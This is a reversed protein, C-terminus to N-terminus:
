RVIVLRQDRFERGSALRVHYVGPPALAGNEFRGNWEVSHAGAEFPGDAFRMVERGALDLVLVTAWDARPMTFRVRVRGSSPNPAVPALALSPGTPRGPVSSTAPPSIAFVHLGTADNAAGSGADGVLFDVTSGASLVLGGSWSTATGHNPVNLTDVFSLVGNVRVTVESTTLPTGGFGSQGTFRATLQHTGTSPATWRVMARVGATDPRLSLTGAAITTGGEHSISDVPSAAVRSGGGSASSWTALNGPSVAHVDYAHFTAGGDDSWGYTWIGSPNAVASFDVWVDNVTETFRRPVQTSDFAEAPYSHFNGDFMGRLRDAERAIAAFTTDGALAALQPELDMVQRAGATEAIEPPWYNFVAIGTTLAQWVKATHRPALGSGFTYSPSFPTQGSVLAYYTGRNQFLINQWIAAGEPSSPSDKNLHDHTTGGSPTPLLFYGTQIGDLFVSGTRPPIRTTGGLDLGEWLPIQDVRTFLRDNFEAYNSHAYFDQVAHMAFGTELLGYYARINSALTGDYGAIRGRADTILFNVWDIGGPAPWIRNNDFHQMSYRNQIEEPSPQVGPPCPPFIGPACYGDLYGALDPNMVGFQVPFAVVAPVSLSGLVDRTMAFHRQVEFARSPPAAVAALAFAAALFRVPRHFRRAVRM